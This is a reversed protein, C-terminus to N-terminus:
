VLVQGVLWWCRDDFPRDDHNRRLFDDFLEGLSFAIVTVLASVGEYVM